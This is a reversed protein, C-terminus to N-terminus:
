NVNYLFWSHILNMVRGIEELIKKNDGRDDDGVVYVADDDIDRIVPKQCHNELMISIQVSGDALQVISSPVPDTQLLGCCIIIM